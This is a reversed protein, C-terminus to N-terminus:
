KLSDNIRTVLDPLEEDPTNVFAFLVGDNIPGDIRRIGIPEGGITIVLRGGLNGSSAQMLRLQGRKRLTFALAKGLEVQVLDVRAVDVESIIPTKSVPVAIEGIETQVVLEELDSMNGLRSELFVRPTDGGGKSTECGSFLILSLASVFFLSLRKM